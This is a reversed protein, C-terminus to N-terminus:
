HGDLKEGAGWVLMGVSHGGCGGNNGGGREESASRMVLGHELINMFEQVFNEDAITVLM